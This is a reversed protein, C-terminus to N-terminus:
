YFKDINYKETLVFVDLIYFLSLPPTWLSCVPDFISKTQNNYCVRIRKYSSLQIQGVISSTLLRRVLSLPPTSGSSPTTFVVHPNM